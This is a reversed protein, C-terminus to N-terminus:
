SNTSVCIRYGVEQPRDAVTPGHCSPRADTGAYRGMPPRAPVTPWPVGALHRQVVVRDEHGPLPGPPRTGAAADRPRVTPTAAVRTRPHRGAAVGALRALGVGRAPRGHGRRLLGRAPGPRVATLGVLYQWVAVVYLAEAAWFWLHDRWRPVALAAWPLLWVSAQVPATKAVLLTGVVLVLVLVPLRPPVPCSLFWVTTAVLVVLVLVGSITSAQQATLGSVGTVGEDALLRPVLLLSGYGPESAWWSRAPATWATPSLLALPLNVRPGRSRPPPCRSRSRARAARRAARAPRPRVRRPRRPLPRRRGRGAARGRARPQPPGLGRRRAVGLAVGLLDFSVLGSLVVVPSARAPRRGVASPRLDVGRRPGRRAAGRRHAPGVPRLVRAPGADVVAAGEAAAGALRESWGTLPAALVAVLAALYATVAPQGLGDGAAADLGLLAGPEGGLTGYLVAVDSYCTHVFQGPTTWGEARCHQARVVALFTTLLSLLALVRAASWWPHAPVALRRGAPGGLLPSAWRAFPDERTPAAVGRRDALAPPRRHSGVGSM